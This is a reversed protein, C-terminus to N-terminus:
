ALGPNGEMGKLKPMNIDVQRIVKQDRLHRAVVEWIPPGSDRAAESVPAWGAVKYTKGPDIPKGGLTMDSIRNGMGALPDCAYQLGGVRVM